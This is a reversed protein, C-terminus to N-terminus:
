IQIAYDINIAQALGFPVLPSINIRSLAYIKVQAQQPFKQWQAFMVFESIVGVDGTPSIVGAVNVRSLGATYVGVVTNTRNSEPASVFPTEINFNSRLAPTLGMGVQFLTGVSVASNNNYRAGFAPSGSFDVTEEVGLRDVLPLESPFRLFAGQFFFGFNDLLLDNVCSMGISKIEKEKTATVICTDNVQNQSVPFKKEKMEFYESHIEDILKQTKTKGIHELIQSNEM